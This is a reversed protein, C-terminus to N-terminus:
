PSFIKQTYLLSPLVLCNIKKKAGFFSIRFSILHLTGVDFINGACHHPAKRPAFAQPAARLFSKCHQDV